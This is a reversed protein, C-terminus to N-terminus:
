LLFLGLFVGCNLLRGFIIERILSEFFVLDTLSRRVFAVITEVTVFILVWKWANVWFCCVFLFCCFPWFWGFFWTWIGRRFLWTLGVVICCSLLVCMVCKGLIGFRCLLFLVLDGLCLYWLVVGLCVFILFFRLILFVVWLVWLFVM